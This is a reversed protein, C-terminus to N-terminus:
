GDPPLDFAPGPTASCPRELTRQSRTQSRLCIAAVFRTGNGGARGSATPCQLPQINSHSASEVLMGSRRLKGAKSLRTAISMASRVSSAGDELRKIPLLEPLLTMTIPLCEGRREPQLETPAANMRLCANAPEGLGPSSVHGRKIPSVDPSREFRSALRPHEVSHIPPSFREPPRPYFPRSIGNPEQLAQLIKPFARGPCEAWDLAPGRGQLSNAAHPYPALRPDCAARTRCFKVSERM